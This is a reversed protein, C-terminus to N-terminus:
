RLLGSLRSADLGGKTLDIEEDESDSTRNTGASSSGAPPSAKSLKSTVKKLEKNEAEFEKLKEDKQKIQKQLVAVAIPYNKLAALVAGQQDPTTAYWDVASLRTDASKLAEEAEADVEPLIQKRLEADRATYRNKLEEQYTKRGQEMALEKDRNQLALAQDANERIVKNKRVVDKYKPLIAALEQYDGADLHERLARLAAKQEVPDAIQAIAHLQQISVAGDSGNAVSQLTPIVEEEWPRKVAEIYEDSRDVAVVSLEKKLRVRDEEAEKLKQEVGDLRAQFEPPPTTPAESVKQELEKIKSELDPIKAAEKKFKRQERSLEIFATEQKKKSSSVENFKKKAEADEDPTEIIETVEVPSKEATETTTETVVPDLIDTIPEDVPETVVPEDTIIKDLTSADDKEEKEDPVTIMSDFGTSGPMALNQLAPSQAVLPKYTVPKPDAPM